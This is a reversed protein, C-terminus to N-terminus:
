SYDVFKNHTAQNPNFVGYVQNNADLFGVRISAALSGPNVDAINMATLYIDRTQNPAPNGTYASFYLDYVLAVGRGAITQYKDAVGDAETQYFLSGNGSQDKMAYDTYQPNYFPDNENGFDIYTTYNSYSNAPANQGSTWVKLVGQTEARVQTGHIDAQSSATFWAYGAATVVLASLLLMMFLMLFRKKM